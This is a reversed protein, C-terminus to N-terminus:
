MASAIATAMTQLEPLQTAPATHTIVGGALSGQVGGRLFVITLGSTTAGGTYVYAKDGVGSLEQFNDNGRRRDELAGFTSASTRDLVLDATGQSGEAICADIEPTTKSIPGIVSEIAPRAGTTM